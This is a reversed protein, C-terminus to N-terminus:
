HEPLALQDEGWDGVPQALASKLPEALAQNVTRQIAIDQVTVSQGYYERNLDERSQLGGGEFSLGLFLGASDSFAVTGQRKTETSGLDEGGAGGFLVGREAGISLRSSLAATLSKEDMLVIILSARRVGAQFGFSGSGMSFFAPGSWFGTEDRTLLVGDGMQLGGIFGAKLLSPFVLVGRARTLLFDLAGDKVEARMRRVTEAAKLVLAQGSPPSVTPRYDPEARAPGATLVLALAMGLVAGLIAGAMPRIRGLTWGTKM